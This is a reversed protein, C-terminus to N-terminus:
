IPLLRICAYKNIDCIYENIARNYVATRSYHLASSNVTFRLEM